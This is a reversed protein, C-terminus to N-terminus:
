WSDDSSSSSSSSDDSSSSSWSSDNSSSSSWSSSSSSSSYSSSNDSYSSPSSSYSSYSSSSYSTRKVREDEDNYNVILVDFNSYNNNDLQKTLEAKRTGSYNSLKAQRSKYDSVDKILSSIKTHLRDLQQETEKYNNTLTVERVQTLLSDRILIFKTPVTINVKNILRAKIENISAHQNDQQKYELAFTNLENLISKLTDLYYYDNNNSAQILLNTAWTRDVSTIPKTYYTNNNNTIYNAVEKISQKLQKFQKILEFEKSVIPYYAKAAAERDALNTADQVAKFLIHVQSQEAYDSGSNYSKNAQVLLDNYQKIEEELKQLRIVEALPDTGSLGEISALFQKILSLLQSLSGSMNDLSSTYNSWISNNLVANIFKPLAKLDLYLQNIRNVEDLLHKTKEATAGTYGNLYTSQEVFTSYNTYTQELLEKYKKYEQLSNNLRKVIAKISYYVIAFILVIIFGFGVVKVGNDWAQKSAVDRIVQLRKNEIDAEVQQQKAKIQVVVQEAVVPIFSEPDQPLYKGINPKVIGNSIDEKSILTRFDSGVNASFSGKNPNSDDKNYYLSIYNPRKISGIFNDNAYVAKNVKSGNPLIVTNPSLTNTSYFVINLSPEKDSISTLTQQLKVDNFNLSSDRNVIAPAALVSGGFMVISSLVVCTTITISKVKKM